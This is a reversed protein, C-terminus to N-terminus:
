EAVMPSIGLPLRSSRSEGNLTVKVLAPNAKMAPTPVPKTVARRLTTDPTIRPSTEGRMLDVMLPRSLEPTRAETAVVKFRPTGAEIGAPTTRDTRLTRAVVRGSPLLVSGTMPTLAASPENPPTRLLNGAAAEVLPPPEHENATAM